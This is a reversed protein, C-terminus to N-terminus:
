LTKRFYKCIFKSSFLSLSKIFDVLDILYEKVAEINCSVAASQKGMKEDPESKIRQGIIFIFILYNTLM